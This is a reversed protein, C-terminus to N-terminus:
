STKALRRTGWSLGQAALVRRELAASFGGAGAEELDGGRRGGAKGRAPDRDTKPTGRRAGWESSSIESTSMRQSRGDHGGGEGGGWALDRRRPKKLDGVEEGRRVRLSHRRGVAARTGARPAPRGHSCGTVSPLVVKLRARRFTHRIQSSEHLEHIGASVM